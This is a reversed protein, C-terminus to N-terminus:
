EVGSFSKLFWDNLQGYFGPQPKQLEQLQDTSLNMKESNDELYKKFATGDYGRKNLEYAIALPSSELGMARVLAPAAKLTAETSNENKGFNGIGQGAARVSHKIPPLSNIEFNLRKNEKVPMM